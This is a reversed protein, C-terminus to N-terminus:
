YSIQSSSKVLHDGDKSWRPCYSIPLSLSYGLTRPKSIELTWGMQVRLPVWGLFFTSDWGNAQYVKFMLLVEREPNQSERNTGSSSGVRNKRTAGSLKSAMTTAKLIPAWSPHNVSLPAPKLMAMTLHACRYIKQTGSKPSMQLTSLSFCTIKILKM